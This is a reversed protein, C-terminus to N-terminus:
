KLMDVAKYFLLDKEAKNTVTDKMTNRFIPNKKYSTIYCDNELIFNEVKIFFGDLKNNLLYRLIDFPIRELHQANIELKLINLSSSYNDAKILIMSLNPINKDFYINVNVSNFKFIYKIM